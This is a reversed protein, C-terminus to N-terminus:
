KQITQTFRGLQIYQGYGVLGETTPNAVGQTGSFVPLGCRMGIFNKLDDSYKEVVKRCWPPVDLGDIYRHDM